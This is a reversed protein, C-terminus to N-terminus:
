EERKGRSQVPPPNIVIPVLTAKVLTLLRWVLLLGIAMLGVDCAEKVSMFGSM